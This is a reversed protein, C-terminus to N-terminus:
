APGERIRPSWGGGRDGGRREGWDPDGFRTRHGLGEGGHSNRRSQLLVYAINNDNLALVTHNHQFHLSKWVGTLFFLLLAGVGGPYQPSEAKGM